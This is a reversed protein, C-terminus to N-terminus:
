ARRRVDEPRHSWKVPDHGMEGGSCEYVVEDRQFRGTSVADCVPCAVHDFVPNGQRAARFSEMSIVVGTYKVKARMRSEMFEM